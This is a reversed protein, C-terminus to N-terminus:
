SHALRWQRARDLYFRALEYSPTERWEAALELVTFYAARRYTFTFRDAGGPAPSGNPSTPTTPNNTM